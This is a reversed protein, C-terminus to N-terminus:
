ATVKRQVEGAGHGLYDTRGDGTIDAEIDMVFTVNASGGGYFTVIAQTQTPTLSWRLKGDTGDGAGDPVPTYALTANAILTGDLVDRVDSRFGGPPSDYISLNIPTGGSTLLFDRIASCGEHLVNAAKLGTDLENSTPSGEPRGRTRAGARTPRYSRQSGEALGM